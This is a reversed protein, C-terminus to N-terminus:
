RVPPARTPAGSSLPEPPPDSDTGLTRSSRAIAPELGDLTLIEGLVAPVLPIAWSIAADVVPPALSTALSTPHLECRCGALRRAYKADSTGAEIRGPCLISSSLSEARSCRAGRGAKMAKTCCPENCASIPIAVHSPRVCVAEMAPMVASGTILAIACFMRLLLEALRM